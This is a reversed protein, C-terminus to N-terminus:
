KKELLVPTSADAVLPLSCYSHTTIAPAGNVTFRTTEVMCTDHKMAERQTTAEIWFIFWTVLAIVITGILVCVCMAQFAQSGEENFTNM